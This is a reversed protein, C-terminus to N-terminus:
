ELIMGMNERLLVMDDVLGGGLRARRATIINGATSFARESPASTAPVALHEEALKWVNAFLYHNQKWWVLPNSEKINVIDYDMSPAERYRNLESKLIIRINREDCFAAPEKKQTNRKRKKMFRALDDEEEQEENAPTTSASPSNGAKDNDKAAAKEQLDRVRKVESEVMMDLIKDWLKEQNSKDPTLELEKLRPDLAHACWTAPHVGVQRNRDERAVEGHFLSVAFDEGFRKLFEEKM